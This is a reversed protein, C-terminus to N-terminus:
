RSFWKDKWHDWIKVAHTFDVGIRISLAKEKWTYFHWESFFFLGKFMINIIFPTESFNVDNWLM